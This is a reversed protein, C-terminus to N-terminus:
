PILPSWTGDSADTPTPIERENRGTLDISYLKSRGKTDERTFLIVRGNPAWSPEEVLWGTALLREGSGDPKMVGVYFRGKDIKTFAILDGRPSWVPSRYSGSGFSIREATGGGAPMVYIQTQGGRDSNFVIQTGDPNYCPSTDIVTGGGTLRKIAKSHLDMCFLSTNGDNAYSMVMNRGDPSFRPAFTMGQFNGLMLKQGTMLRMLYVHVKRKEFDLYTIEHLNPSFRPTLVMTHGNSLYQHNEGDQDMIALRKVRKKAPGTQAIYVIRTDFYGMEGTVRKYIADAIKHAVRRWNKQTAFFSLGEMQVQTVVDYLRFDLRVRGDPAMQMEGKVLLQANIARWEPFRPGAKLSERDQIFGAADLPRFLGCRELDAAVVKAMDRGMTALADSDGYFPTVAIPTPAVQGQTVEIRLEAQANAALLCVSLFGFVRLFKLM